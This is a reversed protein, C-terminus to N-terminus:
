LTQETTSSADTLTGNDYNAAEGHDETCWV